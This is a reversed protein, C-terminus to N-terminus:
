DELKEIKIADVPCVNEAEQNELIDEETEIILEWKNTEENFKSGLLMVKGDDQLEWFRPAVVLCSATGICRDRDLIVKYKPM